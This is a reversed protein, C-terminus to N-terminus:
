FAESASGPIEEVVPPSQKKTIGKENIWSKILELVDEDAKFKWSEDYQVIEGAYPGLSRFEAVRVNNKKDDLNKRVSQILKPDFDKDDRGYIFM